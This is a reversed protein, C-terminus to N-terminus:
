GNVKLLSFRSTKRSKRIKYYREQIPERCLDGGLGVAELQLHSFSQCCFAFIIPGFSTAVKQAGGGGGLMWCSLTFSKTGVRKCGGAGMLIALVELEQTLVVEGNHVGM